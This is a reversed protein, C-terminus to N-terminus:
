RRRAPRAPAPPPAPANSNWTTAVVKWSKDPQRWLVNTWKGDEPPPAAKTADRMTWSIHYTGTMYAVDGAGAVKTVQAAFSAKAPASLDAWLKHIAQTGAVGAMNPPQITADGAYVATMGDVNDANVAATFASQVARVADQDAQSLPPAGCAALLFSAAAAPILARQM